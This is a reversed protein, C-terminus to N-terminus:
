PLAGLAPPEPLDHALEPFFDGAVRWAIALPYSRSRGSNASRSGSARELVVSRFLTASRFEGPSLYFWLISRHGRGFDGLWFDVREIHRPKHLRSDRSKRPSGSRGYVVGFVDTCLGQNPRNKPVLSLPRSRPLWSFPSQRGPLKHLEVRFRVMRTPISGLGLRCFRLREEGRRTSPADARARSEFPAKQSRVSALRRSGALRPLDGLAMSSSRCLLVAPPGSELYVTGRHCGVVRGLERLATRKSGSAVDM